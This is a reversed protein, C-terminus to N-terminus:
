TSTICAANTFCAASLVVLCAVLQAPVRYFVDVLLRGSMFIARVSHELRSWWVPTHDDKQTQYANILVAYDM